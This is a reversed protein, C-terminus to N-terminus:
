IEFQSSFISNEKQQYRDIIRVNKAILDYNKWLEKM